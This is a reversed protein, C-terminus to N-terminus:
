AAKQKRMEERLEEIERRLRATEDNDHQHPGMCMFHGGSGIMRAIAVVVFLFIVLGVLPFIWFGWIPIMWPGPGWM